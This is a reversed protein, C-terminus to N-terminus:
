DGVRMVPNLSFKPDQLIMSIRRGRIARMRRESAARLDEGHLHLREAGVLATKPTLRLVARGTLSKGSGSEGVIGVKERGVDFSIGRVAEVVGHPTPFRVWLDRVSLIPATRDAADLDTKPAAMSMRQASRARRAIRRRLSKLGPQDAPDG